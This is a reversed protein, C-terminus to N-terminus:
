YFQSAWHRYAMIPGDGEHLKPQPRYLKNEWIPIDEGITQRGERIGKYRLVRTLLWGLTKQMSLVSYVEVHEEDIPTLFFAFAYRIDVKTQILARNM